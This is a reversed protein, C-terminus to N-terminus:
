HRRGRLLWRLRERIGGGKMKKLSGAAPSQSPATAADFPATASILNEIAEKMSGYSGSEALSFEDDLGAMFSFESPLRPWEEFWFRDLVRAFDGARSTDSLLAQHIRAALNRIAEAPDAGEGLRSLRRDMEDRPAKAALSVETLDDDYGPSALIVQDAWAVVEDMSAIGADLLLRLNEAEQAYPKKAAPGVVEGGVLIRRPDVGGIRLALRMDGPRLSDVYEVGQVSVRLVDGSRLPVAVFDGPKVKGEILPDIAVFTGKRKISFADKIVGRFNPGMKTDWTTYM